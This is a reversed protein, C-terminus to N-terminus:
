GVSLMTLYIIFVNVKTMLHGVRIKDSMKYWHQQETSIYALKPPRCPTDDTTSSFLLLCNRFTNKDRLDTCDWQSHVTVTIRLLRKLLFPLQPGHCTIEPVAHSLLWLSTVNIWKATYGWHRVRSVCLELVRPFMRPRSKMKLKNLMAQDLANRRM